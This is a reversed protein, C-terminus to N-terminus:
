VVYEDKGIVMGECPMQGNVDTITQTLTLSHGGSTLERIRGEKHQLITDLRAIETELGKIREAPSQGRYRKEDSEKVRAVTVTIAGQCTEVIRTLYATDAGLCFWGNVEVLVDGELVRGLTTHKHVEDKVEMVCVVKAQAVLPTDVEPLSSVPTFASGPSGIKPTQGQPSGPFGPVGALSIELNLEKLVMCERLSTHKPLNLLLPCLDYKQTL